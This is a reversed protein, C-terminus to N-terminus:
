LKAPLKSEYVDSVFDESVDTKLATTKSLRCSGDIYSFDFTTCEFKLEDSCKKACNDITLDM